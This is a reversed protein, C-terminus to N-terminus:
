VYTVLIRTLKLLLKLLFVTGLCKESRCLKLVFDLLTALTLCPSAFRLVFQCLRFNMAIKISKDLATESNQHDIAVGEFRPDVQYIGTTSLSNEVVLSLQVRESSM